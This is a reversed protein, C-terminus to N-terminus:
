YILMMLLLCCQSGRVRSSVVWWVSGRNSLPRRGHAGYLYVRSESFCVDITSEATTKAKARFRGREGNYLITDNCSVLAGDLAQRFFRLM